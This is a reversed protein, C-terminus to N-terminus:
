YRTAAGQAASTHVGFGAMIGDGAMHFVEGGSDATAAALVRFFEELMPVVRVAPLREALGTYGRLDAFLVTVRATQVDGGRVRTVMMPGAARLRTVSARRVNRSGSM